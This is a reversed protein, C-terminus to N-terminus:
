GDPVRERRRVDVGGVVDRGLGSSAKPCGPLLSGPPIPTARGEGRRGPPGRLGPRAAPAALMGRSLDFLEIIQRNTSRHESADRSPRWQTAWGSSTRAPPAFIHLIM